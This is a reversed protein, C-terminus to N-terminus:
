GAFKDALAARLEAPVRACKDLYDHDTRWRRRYTANLHAITYGSGSPLRTNYDPPAANVKGDVVVRGSKSKVFNQFARIWTETQNGFLGDVSIDDGAPRGAKSDPHNM